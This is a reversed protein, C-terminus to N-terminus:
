SGDLGKKGDRRGSSNVWVVLSFTGSVSIFCIINIVVRADRARADADAVGRV